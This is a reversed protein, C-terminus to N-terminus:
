EHSPMCFGPDRENMEKRRSSATHPAADSCDASLWSMPRGDLKVYGGKGGADRLAHTEVETEWIGDLYRLSEM